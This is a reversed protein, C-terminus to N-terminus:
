QLEQNLSNLRDPTGVDHWKGQYHEGTVKEQNIAQRLAPIFSIMQKGADYFLRPQYVGIGSFTLMIQGNEGVTRGHLTFDGNSNHAPNDVMIIHALHDTLSQLSSYNFNTYIDGNILIFPANGLLPLVNHVGGGTGLPEIGEHSYRINIGYNKGNGFKKEIKEGFRGTNIIVESVSAKALAEIHYQILSKGGIHLLPKPIEKTLPLMREGKGAALIMAKVIMRRIKHQQLVIITCRHSAILSKYRLNTLM